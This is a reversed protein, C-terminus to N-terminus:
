PIQSTLQCSFSSHLLAGFKFIVGILDVTQQVNPIALSGRPIICDSAFSPLLALSLLHLTSFDLPAASMLM